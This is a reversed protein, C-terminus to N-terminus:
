GGGRKLNGGNQALISFCNKLLLHLLRVLLEPISKIGSESM